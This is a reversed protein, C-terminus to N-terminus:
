PGPRSARQRRPAVPGGAIPPICVLLNILWAVGGQDPELYHTHAGLGLCLESERVGALRLIPLPMPDFLAYASDRGFLTPKVTDTMPHGLATAAFNPTSWLWRGVYDGSAFANFWREVGIDAATPGNGGNREALVWRYLSPFRAAYLQRLPCGLSLLRVPTGYIRHLLDDPCMGDAVFRADHSILFRFFEASIVTGQSHAVVVIRDYKGTLVHKLLANYRAFIRARPISRRPFERFHNDVDLAIDLPARLSPLYKSLVGGLLTLAAMVGAASLVLPKLLLKSLDSADRETQQLWDGFVSEGPVFNGLLLVGVLVAMLCAVLSVSLVLQDLRRYGVTLWRGLRRTRDRREYKQARTLEHPGEGGHRAGRGDKQVREALLKLEALISPVLTLALYAVLTLLLGALLSFYTTTAEYRRTVFAQATTPPPTSRSAPCAMAQGTGAADRPTQAVPAQRCRAFPRTDKSLTACEIFWCPSYEFQKASVDLAVTLLTWIAMTMMLFTGLSAFLGLRGTTVSAKGEYDTGRAALAGAGWWVVLLIVAPIWWYKVGVLAAETAVLSARFWRDLVTEYSGLWGANGVSSCMLVLVLAWMVRGVPLVLPFRDDAVRLAKDYAASLVLLFLVVAASAATPFSPFIAMGLVVAALPGVGLAVHDARRYCLLLLGAAVTGGGLTWLAMVQQPPTLPRAVGLAITFAAVMLLSSFLLALGNCFLWDLAIQTGAVWDWARTDRRQERHARGRAEDVTERGLKSLRFILTFLETVIRPIAGSLRSLDAWYMEYVHVEDRGAKDERCLDIRKSEYVDPASGHAQAKALLYNTAELGRDSSASRSEGEGSHPRQGTPHGFTRLRHWSSTLTEPATWGDRQFDSRGSQAISKVLPRATDISRPTLTAGAGCPALVPVSLTFTKVDQGEYRVESPSSGILLNAVSRATAGPAQDAVGHVAIIAVRETM